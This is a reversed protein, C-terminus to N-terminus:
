NCGLTNTSAGITSITGTSTTALDVGDYSPGSPCPTSPLSVCTCSTFTRDACSLDSPPLHDFLCNDADLATASDNEVDVGPTGDGSCAGPETALNCGLTNGGSVGGTGGGNLFVQGGQQAVGRHNHTIVGGNSYLTGAFSRLGACGCHTVTAGNLTVVSTGTIQQVGDVEMCQFTGGTITVQAPDADVLLGVTDPKPNPCGGDVPAVGFVPRHDLTVNCYPLVYLGVQTQGQIILDGDSAGPDILTAPSAANLGQCVIGTSSPAAGVQSPSEYNGFRVPGDIELTGNVEVQAGNSSGGLWVSSLKATLGRVLLGDYTNQTQGALDDFGIFVPHGPAGQITVPLHDSTDAPTVDFVDNVFHATDPVFFFIGAADLTIGRHLVIPWTEPATWNGMGGGVTATLIVETAHSRDIAETAATLTLCAASGPGTGCCATDSGAVSNVYVGAGPGIPPCCVRQKPFCRNGPFCVTDDICHDPCGIGALCTFNGCAQTGSDPCSGAGDCSRPLAYHNTVDCTKGGCAVTTGPYACAGSALCATAGCFGGDTTLCLSSCCRGGLCQGSACHPNGSCITGGAGGSTGGTSSGTTGGSTTGTTGGGPAPCASLALLALLPPLKTM